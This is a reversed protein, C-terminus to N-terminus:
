KGAIFCCHWCPGISERCCRMFIAISAPRPTRACLVTETYRGVLHGIIAGNHLTLAVIAPLMSPGWLQLLVFALIYEPTSRAVVLFVHGCFRSAKGLLLPSILPFLVITLFGTAVLAIMTLQVTAITGPVAQDVVMMHLWDWFAEMGAGSRLPHPVIDETLFRVINSFSFAVGWPLIAAAGILYVPMLPRKMWIRMTAIVLYFLILLRFSRFVPRRQFRDGFSIGIDTLRYLGARCKLSHWM